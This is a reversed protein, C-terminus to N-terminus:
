RSLKLATCSAWAAQGGGMGQGKLELLFTKAANGSNDTYPEAYPLQLTTAVGQFLFVLMVQGTCAIYM